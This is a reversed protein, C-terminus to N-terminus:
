DKDLSPLRSSVCPTDFAENPVIARWHDHDLNALQCARNIPRDVQDLVPRLNWMTLTNDHGIQIATAGNTSVVVPVAGDGVVLAALDAPHRTDVLSWLEARGTADAVIAFDGAPTVWVRHPASRAAMPVTASAEASGPALKWVSITGERHVAVTTSADASVAVADVPGGSSTLRRESASQQSLVISHVTISGDGHGAALVTGRPAFALATTPQSYSLTGRPKMDPALDWVTGATGRVVIATNADSTVAADDVADAM